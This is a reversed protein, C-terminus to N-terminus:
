ANAIYFLVAKKMVTTGNFDRTTVNDVRYIKSAYTIKDYKNLTVDPGVYITLDYNKKLGSEDLDYKENYPQIVISINAPTGDSYAKNGSFDTTMTVPTRSATVGFDATPGLAFDTSVGM